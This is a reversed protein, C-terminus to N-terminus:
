ADDGGGTFKHRRIVPLGATAADLLRQRLDAAGPLPHENVISLQVQALVGREADVLLADQRAKEAIIRAPKAPKVAAPVANCGTCHVGRAAFLAAADPTRHCLHCARARRKQPPKATEHRDAQKKRNWFERLHTQCRSYTKHRPESCGPEVCINSAM